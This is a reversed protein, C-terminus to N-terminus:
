EGLEKTIENDIKESFKKYAMNQTKTKLMYLFDDIDKTSEICVRFSFTIKVGRTFCTFDKAASGEYIFRIVADHNVIFFSDRCEEESFGEFYKFNDSDVRCRFLFIRSRSSYKYGIQENMSCELIDVDLTQLYTKVIEPFQNIIDITSYYEHKKIRSDSSLNSLTRNTSM